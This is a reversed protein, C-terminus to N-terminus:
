ELEIWMAPVVGSITEDVSDSYVDGDIDMRHAFASGYYHPSRLWWWGNGYYSSGTGMYAGTARSYDSTTMRRAEDYDSYSSAFGYRRNTVEKYSLLFVKDYTNECVYVNSDKGTSAASNDVTTTLILEQQLTSFATNYFTGNLWERIESDAYNNSSDDYRHNYIISDCLIFAKGNSETLIRWRIPEVKFYYVTGSTVTTGTSFTYGSDYPYPSATVKAYWENDSGLYYGKDNTTSTITVGNAKITQPYSGFYVYDGHRCLGNVAHVTTECVTCECNEDLTHAVADCITCICDENPTHAVANCITCICNEDPTHAVADCITCICDENPTHSTCKEWKATYKKSEEGMTFTYSLSTGISVKTEGDYWGLWTYGANTTATITVQDGVVYTDTLSSITGASTNNRTLIIKYWKATYTKSENGMTFTYTQSTGESVKAEGDYWGLWTYGVNTTATITKEEGASVKYNTYRTYSGGASLNTSTTITYYTWKATYTKNEEGMTFTYSLSTGESVKTDGSYWGLWTYGDNITATLTVEEGVSIKKDSYQTYTGANSLNANTTVSYYTFKAVYTVNYAPVNVTYTSNTSIRTGYISNIYWGEFSYGTKPTARLTVSSNYDYEGSINNVTGEDTNASQVTVNYSNVEWHAKYTVDQAYRYELAVGDKGSIAKTGYYWGVFTYGTKTPIPLTYVKDYTATFKNSSLNGGDTNLTITYKKPTATSATFIKFPETVYYSSVDWTLHDYGTTESPPDFELTTHSLATYSKVVQDNVMLRVEAYFNRWISLTYTRNVKDDSSNVVIYYLNEGSKLESAYKTPILTQGKKDAYLQWSSNKSVELMGSLEVEEIEPAVELSVVMGEVKGGTISIVKASDDVEESGISGGSNDGSDTNNNGSDTNNNGTDTNDNNTDDSCAVMIGIFLSMILIISVLLGIKRRM